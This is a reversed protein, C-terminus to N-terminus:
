GGVTRRRERQQQVADMAISTLQGVDSADQVRYRLDTRMRAALDKLLTLDEAAARADCSPGRDRRQHTTGCRRATGTSGHPSPVAPRQSGERLPYHQLTGRVRGLSQLCWGSHPDGDDRWGPNGDGARRRRCRSRAPCAPARAAPAGAVVDQQVRGAVAGARDRGCHVKSSASPVTSSRRRTRAAARPGPRRRPRELPAGVHDVVVREDARHVALPEVHGDHGRVVAREVALEARQVPRDVVPHRDDRDRLLVRVAATPICTAATIWWPTSTSASGRPRRRRRTRRTGPGSSGRCPRACRPGRPAALGADRQPDGRLHALRGLVGVEAVLDLGQQAVVDLVDALDAAGLLHRQERSAAQRSLGISHSSGNPMTITSAIAQPVGTTAVGDPGRGLQDVLAHGAVEALVDVAEGGRHRQGGLEVPRRHRFTAASRNEAARIASWCTRSYRRVMASWRSRGAAQSARPARRGVTRAATGQPSATCSGPSADSSLWGTGAVVTVSTSPAENRIADAFPSMSGPPTSPSKTPSVRIQEVSRSCTSPRSTSVRVDAIREGADADNAPRVTSRWSTTKRSRETPGRCAPRGALGSGPRAFPALELDREPDVGVERPQELHLRAGHHGGAAAHRASPFASLNAPGPAGGPCSPRLCRRRSRGRPRSGASARALELGALSHCPQTSSRASRPPCSTADAAGQPPGGASTTGPSAAQAPGFPEDAAGVDGAQREGHFAGPSSRSPRRM